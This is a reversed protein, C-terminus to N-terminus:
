IEKRNFAKLKNNIDTKCNTDIADTINSYLDGIIEVGLDSLVKLTDESLGLKNISISNFDDLENDNSNDAKSKKLRITKKEVTPVAGDVVKNAKTLYKCTFDEIFPYEEQISPLSDTYKCMPLHICKNCNM